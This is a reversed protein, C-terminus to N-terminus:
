GIPGGPARNRLHRNLKLHAVRVSHSGAGRLQFILAKLQEVSGTLLRPTLGDRAQLADIRQDDPDGVRGQEMVSDSNRGFTTSRLDM